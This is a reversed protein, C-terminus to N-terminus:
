EIVKLGLIYIPHIEEGDSTTSRSNFIKVIRYGKALLENVENENKTEKIKTIEDLKM